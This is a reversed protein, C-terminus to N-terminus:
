EEGVLWVPWFPFSNIVTESCLSFWWLLKGACFCDIVFWPSAVLCLIGFFGPRTFLGSFLLTLPLRVCRPCSLFSLALIGSGRGSQLSSIWLSPIEDCCSLFVWFGHPGPLGPVGLSVTYLSAVSRLLCLGCSSSARLCRSLHIIMMGVLFLLYRLVTSVVSWACFSDMCLRVRWFNLCLLSLPSLFVVTAFSLFLCSYHRLFGSMLGWLDICSLIADLMHSVQGSRWSVSTGTLTWLSLASSHDVDARGAPPPSVSGSLGLRYREAPASSRLELGLPGSCPSRDPFAMLLVLCVVLLPLLRGLESKKRLLFPIPLWGVVLLASLRPCLLVWEGSAPVITGALGVVAGLSFAPPFTAVARRVFLPSVPASLGSVVPAQSVTM